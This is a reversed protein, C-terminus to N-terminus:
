VNVCRQHGEDGPGSWSRWEGPSTTLCGTNPWWSLLSHSGRRYTWGWKVSFSMCFFLLKCKLKIMFLHIWALTYFSYKLSMKVKNKWPLCGTTFMHGVHVCHAVQLPGGVGASQTKVGKTPESSTKKNEMQTHTLAILLSLLFICWVFVCYKTAVHIKSINVLRSLIWSRRSPAHVEQIATRVATLISEWDLQQLAIQMKSCVAHTDWVKVLERERETPGVWSNPWISCVACVDVGHAPWMVSGQQGRSIVKAFHVQEGEGARLWPDTAM